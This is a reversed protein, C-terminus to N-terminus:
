ASCWWPAGKAGMFSFKCGGVCEVFVGMELVSVWIQVPSSKTAHPGTNVTSDQQKHITKGFVDCVGKTDQNHEQLM